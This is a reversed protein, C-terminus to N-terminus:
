VVLIEKQAVLADVVAKLSALQAKLSTIETQQEQAVKVLTPIFEPLGMGYYDEDDDNQKPMISVFEPYIEKVEQAIFGYKPIDDAQSNMKYNVPRLKMLKETQSPLDVISNKLRADSTFTWVTASTGNIYAWTSGTNTQTNYAITFRQSNDLYIGAPSAQDPRWWNFIAPNGYATPRKGYDWIYYAGNDFLSSLYPASANGMNVGLNSGGSQLYIEGVAKIFVQNAGLGTINNGIVIENSTSASSTQNNFGICINQSGSTTTQGSDRGICINNDGSTISAGAGAGIGVNGAGGLNAFGSNQGVFTNITGTTLGYGSNIGVAVNNSGSVVGAGMASTGVATNNGGSSLLACAGSGLITNQIGTTISDGTTAGGLVINATNNNAGSWLHTGQVSLKHTAGTITMNGAYSCGSTGWSVNSPLFAHVDWTGNQTANTLQVVQFISGATASYIVSAGTNNYLILGASANNNFTYTNGIPTIRADPLYYSPSLNNNNIHYPLDYSSNATILVANASNVYTAVAFDMVGKSTGATNQIYHTGGRYYMNTGGGSLISPPTATIGGWTISGYSPLVLKNSGSSAGGADADGLFLGTTKYSALKVGSANYILIDNGSVRTISAFKNFQLALNWSM